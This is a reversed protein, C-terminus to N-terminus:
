PQKLGLRWKYSIFHINTHAHHLKASFSQLLPEIVLGTVITGVYQNNNDTIGIGMPASYKKSYIGYIPKGIIPRWTQLQAKQIYDRHALSLKKQAINKTNNAAVVHHMEDAFLFISWDYIDANDSRFTYLLEEIKEIDGPFSRIQMAMYRILYTTTNLVETLSDVM